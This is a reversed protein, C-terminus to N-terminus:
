IVPNDSQLHKIVNRIDVVIAALGDSIKSWGFVRASYAVTEIYTAAQGLARIHRDHKHKAVITFPPTPTREDIMSTVVNYTRTRVDYLDM